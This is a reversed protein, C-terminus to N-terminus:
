PDKFYLRSKLDLIPLNAATDCQAIFWISNADDAMGAVVGTTDSDIWKMRGSLRIYKKYVRGRPGGEKSNLYLTKDWLVKFRTSNDPELPSLVSVTSYLNAATPAENSPNRDRFVTLRIVQGTTSAAPLVLSARFFMSTPMIVNGDRTQFDDGIPVTTLLTALQAGTMLPVSFGNIAADFRKTERERRLKKVGGLAARAMKFASTRRPTAFSLRRKVGRRRMSSM